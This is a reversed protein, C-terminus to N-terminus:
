IHCIVYKLKLLDSADEDKDGKLSLRQWSRGEEKLVAPKIELVLM